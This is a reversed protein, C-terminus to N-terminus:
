GRDERGNLFGNGTWAEESRHGQQKKGARPDQTSVATQAKKERPQVKKKGKETRSTKSERDVVVVREKIADGQRGAREWLNATGLRGAFGETTKEGKSHSCCSKGSRAKRGEMRLQLGRGNGRTAGTREGSRERHAPKATKKKAKRSGQFSNEESLIV